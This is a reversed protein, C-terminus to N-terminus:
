VPGDRPDILELFRGNEVLYRVEEIPASNNAQHVLHLVYLLVRQALMSLPPTDDPYRWAEAAVAERIRQMLQQGHDESLFPRERPCEAHAKYYFETALYFADDSAGSGTLPSERLEQFPDRFEVPLSDYVHGDLVCVAITDNEGCWHAIRPFVSVMVRDDNAEGDGRVFVLGPHIVAEPPTSTSSAPGKRFARYREAVVDLLHEHFDEPSWRLSAEAQLKAESANQTSRKKRKAKDRAARRRLRRPLKAAHSHTSQTAASPETPQEVSSRVATGETATEESTTTNLKAVERPPSLHHDHPTDSTSM